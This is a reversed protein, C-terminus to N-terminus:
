KGVGPGEALGTVYACQLHAHTEACSHSQWEKRHCYPGAKSYYQSESSISSLGRGYQFIGMCGLCRSIPRFRAGVLLAVGLEDSHDFMTAAAGDNDCLLGRTLHKQLFNAQHVVCGRNQAACRDGCDVALRGHSKWSSWFHSLARKVAAYGPFNEKALEFARKARWSLTKDFPVHEASGSVVVTTLNRGHPGFCIFIVAPVPMRDTPDRGEILQATKLAGLAEIVSDCLQGRCNHRAPDIDGGCREVAVCVLLEVVGRTSPPDRNSRLGAYIALSSLRDQLEKLWQFLKQHSPPIAQPRQTPKPLRSAMYAVQSILPRAHPCSLEPDLDLVDGLVALYLQAAAELSPLAKQTVSVQVQDPHMPRFVPNPHEFVTVAVM